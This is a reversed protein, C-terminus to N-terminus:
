KEDEPLNEHLDELPLDDSDPNTLIDDVVNRVGHRDVIQKKLRFNDKTDAM